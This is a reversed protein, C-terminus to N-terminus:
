QATGDCPGRMFSGAWSAADPTISTRPVVGVPRCLSRVSERRRSTLEPEGARRVEREGGHHSLDGPRAAPGDDVDDQEQAEEDRRGPGHEAEPVGEDADVQQMPSLVAKRLGRGEYGRRSRVVGDPQLGGDEHGHAVLLRGPRDPAQADHLLTEVGRALAITESVEDEAVGGLGIDGRRLLRRDGRPLGINLIGAADDVPAALVVRPELRAVQAVEAARVPAREVQHQRQVGVAEHAALGDHAHDVHHLGMRPEADQLAEDDARRRLAGERAHELEAHAV